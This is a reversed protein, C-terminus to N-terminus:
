RQKEEADKVNHNLLQILRNTQIQVEDVNANDAEVVENAEPDAEVEEEYTDKNQDEELM